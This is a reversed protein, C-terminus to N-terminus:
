RVCLLNAVTEGEDVGVASRLILEVVGDPFSAVSHSTGDRPEDGAGGARGADGAGSAGGGRTKPKAM